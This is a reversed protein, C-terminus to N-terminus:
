RGRSPERRQSRARRPSAVLAGAGLLLAVLGTPEPLATVNDIGLTATVTPIAGPGDPAGDDHRILLREVNQLSAVHGDAGLVRTLDAEELSFAATVWGSGSALPTAVTSTWATCAGAGADCGPTFLVVRLSLPDPGFNNLDFSVTNVTEADYDGSWQDLNFTGLAFAASAIELYADGVGDPGGDPVNAPVSGGAWNQLTGDEFDDVHNLTISAPSGSADVSGTQGAFNTPSNVAASNTVCDFSGVGDTPVPGFTCTDYIVFSVSDGTTDFFPVSGPAIIADPTPAGPLDAFGQTAVLYFKNATNTVAGNTWSFSEGNSAISGNGVGGETNGGNAEMLEVFQITGDANSFVESVDWTHIGALATGPSMGLVIIALLAHLRNM